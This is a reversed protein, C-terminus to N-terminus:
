SFGSRNNISDVPTITKGIKNDNRNDDKNPCIGIRDNNLDIIQKMKRMGKMKRTKLKYNIYDYDRNM